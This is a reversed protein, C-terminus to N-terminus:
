IKHNKIEIFWITKLEKIRHSLNKFHIVRYVSDQHVTWINQVEKSLNIKTMYFPIEKWSLSVIKKFLSMFLKNTVHFSTRLIMLSLFMSSISNLAFYLSHNNEKKKLRLNWYSAQCKWSIRILSKNKLPNSFIYM